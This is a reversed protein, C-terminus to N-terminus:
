QALRPPRPPRASSCPSDSGVFRERMMLNLNGDRRFNPRPGEELITDSWVSAASGAALLVRPDCGSVGRPRRELRAIATGSDERVVRWDARRLGEPSAAASSADGLLTDSSASPAALSKPTSSWAEEGSCGSWVSTSYWGFIRM